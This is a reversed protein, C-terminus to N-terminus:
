PQDWIWVEWYGEGSANEHFLATRIVGEEDLFLFEHITEQNKESLNFTKEKHYQLVKGWSPSPMPKHVEIVKSNQNKYVKVKSSAPRLVPTAVASEPASVAVTPTPQPESTSAAKKEAAGLSFLLLPLLSFYRYKM